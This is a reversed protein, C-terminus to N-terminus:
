TPGALYAGSEDVQVGDGISNGRDSCMFRFNLWDRINIGGTIAHKGNADTIDATLNHQMDHPGDFIFVVKEQNPRFRRFLFPGDYIKIDTISATSHVSLRIRYKETGPVWWKGGTIRTENVSHWDTVIPGNSVFGYFSGFYYHDVYFKQINGPNDQILYMMMRKSATELGAEDSFMDVAMPFPDDMLGHMYRYGDLNEDVQRGNITTRVPYMDYLTLDWYRLPAHSIDYPGLPICGINFWWTPLIIRQKDPSFVTAPPWAFDGFVVYRTGNQDAYDLGPLASFQPTTADKCIKRLQEWKEPSFQELRETFAIWNLGLAKAKAILAEPTAKGDSLTSHAGIVGHVPNTCWDGGTVDKSWDPVNAAGFGPDLQPINGQGIKVEAQGTKSAALARMALWNIANIYLRGTDSPLMGNGKELLIDMYSPLGQGMFMEFPSIGILVISGQGYERSAIFPPAVPYTGPKSKNEENLGGVWMSSAEPEATVLIKWNGDVKVPWTHNMFAHQAPYWITKVGETVPDGATIKKTYDYTFGWGLQETWTHSPDQILEYPLSAGFPALYKDAGESNYFNKFFLLGGGAKVFRDLVDVSSEGTKQPEPENVAIILHFRSVQDWTLTSLDGSRVEAGATKLRQVAPIHLLDYYPSCVLIRTGKLNLSQEGRATASGITLISGVSM